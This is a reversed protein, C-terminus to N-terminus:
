DLYGLSRLKDEISDNSARDQWDEPQPDYQHTDSATTPCWPVEMVSPIQARDSHGYYGREGMANGHDATVVVDDADISSLLLSVDDLVLDLNEKYAEWVKDHSVENQLLQQWVSDSWEEGIKSLQIKSKVEQNPISPFHPQMCHVIMRDPEHDRYTAIAKDIVARPPVTGTSDDWRDKWEESLLFFDREDVTDDHSFAMTTHPNATVYATSEVEHVREQDFTRILWGVSHGAISQFRMVDGITHEQRQAAVEKMLDVRCADLIILVEWDRDFVHVGDYKSSPRLKGYILGNITDHVAFEAAAKPGDYRLRCLIRRGINWIEGIIGTLFSIIRRILPGLGHDTYIKRARQIFHRM